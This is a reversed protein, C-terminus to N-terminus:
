VIDEEKHLAKILLARAMLELEGSMSTLDEASLESSESSLVYSHMSIRDAIQQLSLKSM